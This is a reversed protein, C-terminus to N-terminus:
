DQRGDALARRPAALSDEVEERGLPDLAAEPCAEDM